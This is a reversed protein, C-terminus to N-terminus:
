RTTGGTKKSARGRRTTPAPNRESDELRELKVFPTTKAEEVLAGADLLQQRTFLGEKILGEIINVIVSEVTELFVVGEPIFPRLKEPVYVDKNQAGLVARYGSVKDPVQTLDADIMADRLTSRLDGKDKQLPQGRQKWQREAEVLMRILEIIKSRKTPM